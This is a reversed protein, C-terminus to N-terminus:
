NKRQTKRFRPEKKGTANLRHHLAFHDKHKMVTLNEPRNDRWDGNIHHVDEDPRLPRGLMEEMFYRYITRDKRRIYQHRYARKKQLQRATYTKLEVRSALAEEDSCLWWPESM